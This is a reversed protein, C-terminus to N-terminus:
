FGLCVEFLYADEVILSEKQRRWTENAERIDRKENPFKEYFIHQSKSSKCYIQKDSLVIIQM